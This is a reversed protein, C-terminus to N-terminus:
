HNIKNIFVLITEVQENTSQKDSEVRIDPKQPEQYPKNPDKPLKRKIYVWVPKILKDIKERTDAFPAIVSVIVINKKALM